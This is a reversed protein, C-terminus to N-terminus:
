EAPLAFEGFDEVTGYPPVGLMLWEHTEDTTDNRVSRVVEPDFRVIGGRPVDITKEDAVITGGTLAVYIEEQREHVHPATAEGPELRLTNIRVHDSGVAESLKRHQIGSVPFSEEPIDTPDVVSYTPAM